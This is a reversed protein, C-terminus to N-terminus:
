KSTARKAREKQLRGIWVDHIDSGPTTATIVRVEIGKEQMRAKLTAAAEQGARKGRSDPKDNDSFIVLKKVGPPPEFNQMIGSSITAWTPIGTLAYAGYASELGEAVGLTDGHPMIRMAGGKIELGAMLKKPKEVPAKKGEPTIYTRHINVNSGDPNSVLVLLAPFYGVLRNEEKGDAGVVIQRYALRPHFRMCRPFTKIPLQRTKVLYLWAADGVLIPRAQAWVRGLAKRRKQLKVQDEQRPVPAHVKHARAEVPLSGFFRRVFTASDNFSGGLHKMLLKFGDGAGCGNCFYTGRGDLDDFRFWRKESSGCLPCISHCNHLVEGDIGAAILIERWHGTALERAEQRQQTM